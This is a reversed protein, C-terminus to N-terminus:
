STVVGPAAAGPLAETPSCNLLGRLIGEAKLRIGVSSHLLARFSLKVNGVVYLSGTTSHGARGCLSRPHGETLRLSETEKGAQLVSLTIALKMPNNQSSIFSPNLCDQLAIDVIIYFLFFSAM